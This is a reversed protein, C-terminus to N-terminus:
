KKRRKKPTSKNLNDKNIDENNDYQTLDFYSRSVSEMISYENYIQKIENILEMKFKKDITSNMLIPILQQLVEWSLKVGVEQLEEESTSPLPIDEQMVINTVGVESNSPLPIDEQMVINTVGVESNSPLPIDEQMVINPNQSTQSIIYNDHETLIQNIKDKIHELENIDISTINNPEMEDEIEQYGEYDTGWRQLPNQPLNMPLEEYDLIYNLLEIYNEIAEYLSKQFPFTHLLTYRKDDIAAHNLNAATLELENLIYDSKIDECYTSYYLIYFNPIHPLMIKETNIFVSFICNKKNYKLMDPQYWCDLKVNNYLKFHEYPTSFINSKNRIWMYFKYFRYYNYEKNLVNQNIENSKYKNIRTSIWHEFNDFVETDGAYIGSTTSPKKMNGFVNSNNVLERYYYNVEEENIKFNKDTLFQDNDWYKNSKRTRDHLLFHVKYGSNGDEEVIKQGKKIKNSLVRRWFHLTLKHTNLFTQFQPLTKIKSSKFQKFIKICEESVVGPSNENIPLCLAVAVKNFEANNVKSKDDSNQGYCDMVFNIIKSFTKNSNSIKRYFFIYAYQKQSYVYPTTVKQPDKTPEKIGRPLDDLLWWQNQPDVVFALYHGFTAEGIHTILCILEYQVEIDGEHLILYKEYNIETEDREM